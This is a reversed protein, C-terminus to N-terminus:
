KHNKNLSENRKLDKQATPNPGTPHFGNDTDVVVNARAIPDSIQLKSVM